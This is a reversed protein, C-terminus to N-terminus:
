DGQVLLLEEEQLVDLLFHLNLSHEGDDDLGVEGEVMGIEAMHNEDRWVKGENAWLDPIQAGMLPHPRHETIDESHSLILDCCDFPIFNFDQPQPCFGRLIHNGDMDAIGSEVCFPM